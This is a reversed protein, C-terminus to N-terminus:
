VFRVSPGFLELEDALEASEALDFDEEIPEFREVEDRWADAITPADNYKM